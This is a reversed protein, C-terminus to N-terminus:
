DSYNVKLYYQERLKNKQLSITDVYQFNFVNVLRNSRYIM